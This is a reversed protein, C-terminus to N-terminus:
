CIYVCVCITVPCLTRRVPYRRFKLNTMLSSTISLTIQFPIDVAPHFHGRSVNRFSPLEFLSVSSNVKGSSGTLFVHSFHWRHSLVSM